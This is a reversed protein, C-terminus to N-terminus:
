HNWQIKITRKRENRHRRIKDSLLLQVHHVLTLYAARIKFGHGQTIWQGQPEHTASVFRNNCLQDCQVFTLISGKVNMQQQM